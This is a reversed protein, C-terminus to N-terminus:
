FHLRSCRLSRPLGRKCPFGPYDGSVLFAQPACDFNIVCRGYKNFLNTIDMPGAFTAMRYHEPDYTDQLRQYEGSHLLWAKIKHALEPASLDGHFYCEYPQVYNDYADELYHLAGNRGAVPVTKQRRAPAKIKPLKEIRLCFEETSRGGFTFKGRM